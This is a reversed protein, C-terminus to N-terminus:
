NQKKYIRVTDGFSDFMDTLQENQLVPSNVGERAILTSNTLVRAEDWYGEDIFSQILHAGGEIIVSSLKLYHLGNAIQHVVSVESTIQYYFIKDEQGHKITNFVITDVSQDFLKLSHPLSLDADIVVRVPSSGSWLRNTLQPNDLAATTTGVMIAAEESRWKHVIKDTFANTIRLRNSGFYGIKKDITEAWKLIIYPRYQTNFVFFRKNLEKCEEELVGVLVEIGAEKLKTVGKGNVDKFPDLCGIVVRSIKYKIILDACPPTKGFHACPELSVYITSKAILHHDEAEVSNICNVEAHPGGYQQHYGEGIIRGKYVLVAGVLPNPAVRGAGLKALELCRYMYQHDENM